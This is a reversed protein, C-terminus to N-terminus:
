SPHTLRLERFGGFRPSNIAIVTISTRGFFSPFCLLLPFPLFPLLSPPLSPPLARSPPLFSPLSSLSLSTLFAVSKYCRENADKHRLFPVRGAPVNESSKCGLLLVQFGQPDLFFFYICTKLQGPSETKAALHLSSTLSIIREMLLFPALFCHGSLQYSNGVSSQPRVTSLAPEPLKVVFVSWPHQLLFTPAGPATSPSPQLLHNVVPSLPWRFVLTGKLGCTHLAPIKYAM